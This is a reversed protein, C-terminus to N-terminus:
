FCERSELWEWSTSTRQDSSMFDNSKKMWLSRASQSIMLVFMSRRFKLLMLFISIWSYIITITSQMFCSHRMSTNSISSSTLIIALTIFSTMNRLISSSLVLNTSWWKKAKQDQLTRSSLLRITENALCNKRKQFWLNNRKERWMRARMIRQRLSWKKLRRTKQLSKRLHLTMRSKVRRWSSKNQM